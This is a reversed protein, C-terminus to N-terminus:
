AEDLEDNKSTAIVVPFPTTPLRRAILDLQYRGLPGLATGGRYWMNKYIVFDDAEANTEQTNIFANVYTGLPAPLAGPPITACNDIHLWHKCCGFWGGDARVAAPWVLGAALLSGCFLRRRLTM